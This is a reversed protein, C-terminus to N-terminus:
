PQLLEQQRPQMISAGTTDLANSCLQTEGTGSQKVDPAAASFGRTFRAGLRTQLLCQGCVTPCFGCESGQERKEAGFCLSVLSAAAAVIPSKKYKNKLPVVAKVVVVAVVVFIVAAVVVM